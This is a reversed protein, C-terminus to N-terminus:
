AGADGRLVALMSEHPRPIVVRRVLLGGAEADAAGAEVGAEVDSVDGTFTVYSKGGIGRALELSVLTLSALKSAVDGARITSAISDTEIIGLADLELEDEEPAGDSPGVDSDAVAVQGYPGFVARKTLALLTPEVNPIFLRDLLVDAGVDVGRQLSASVADVEGTFLVVYKGPTVARSLLLEVDAQKLLADVAQLGAAISALELL